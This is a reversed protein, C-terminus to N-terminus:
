NARPRRCPRRNRAHPGRTRPPSQVRPHRPPLRGDAGTGLGPPSADVDGAGQPLDVPYAEPGAVEWGHQRIADLDAAPGRDGDGFTVTLAVTERANEEDSLREGVAAAPTKLDDYLALGLTLGSQGM